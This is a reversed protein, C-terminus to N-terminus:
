RCWSPVENHAVAISVSGREAANCRHMCCGRNESTVVATTRIVMEPSRTPNGSAPKMLFGNLTDAQAEPATPEMSGAPRGGPAVAIADLVQHYLGSRSRM